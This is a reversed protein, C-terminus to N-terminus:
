RRERALKRRRWVSMSDDPRRGFLASPWQASVPGPQASKERRFPGGAKSIVWKRASDMITQCFRVVDLHLIQGSLRLETASVGGFSVYDLVTMIVDHAKVSSEPGIFLVRNFKSKPHGFHGQHLVGGRLRALDAGDLNQFRINADCWAAYKEFTAWIPKDPDCELCACIDPVSLAVAIAVYYLKAELAREIEHLIATLEPRVEDVRWSGDRALVLWGIV